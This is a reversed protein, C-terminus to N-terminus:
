SLATGIRPSRCPRRSLLSVAARGSIDLEGLSLGTRRSGQAPWDPDMGTGIGSCASDAHVAVEDFGMM